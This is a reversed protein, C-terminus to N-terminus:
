VHSDRLKSNNTNAMITRCEHSFSSWSYGWTQLNRKVTSEPIDSRAVFEDRTPPRLEEGFLLHYFSQYDKLTRVTSGPPRGPSVRPAEYRKWWARAHEVYRSVDPGTPDPGQLVFRSDAKNFLVVPARPGIPAVVRRDVLCFTTVTNAGVDASHIFAAQEWGDWPVANAFPGPNHKQSPPFTRFIARRGVPLPWMTAWQGWTEEAMGEFTDAWLYDNAWQETSIRGLRDLDFADPWWRPDIGFGSLLDTPRRASSDPGARWEWPAHEGSGLTGGDVGEGELVSV